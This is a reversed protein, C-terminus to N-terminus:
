KLAFIRYGSHIAAPDLIFLMGPDAAASGMSGAIRAFFRKLRRWTTAM